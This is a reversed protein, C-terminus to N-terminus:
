NRVVSYEGANVQGRLLMLAASDTVEEELAARFFNEGGVVVKDVTGTRNEAVTRLTEKVSDGAFLAGLLVMAGLAAGRLLTSIMM